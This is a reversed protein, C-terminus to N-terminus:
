SFFHNYQNQKSNIFGTNYDASQYDIWSKNLSIRCNKM